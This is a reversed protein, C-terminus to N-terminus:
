KTFLGGAAGQAAASERILKIGGNVAKMTMGGAWDLADETAQVYGPKETNMEGFETGWSPRNQNMGVAEGYKDALYKTTSDDRGQSFLQTAAVPALVKGAPGALGTTQLGKEVGAGILAGKGVDLAAEGV